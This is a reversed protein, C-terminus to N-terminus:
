TSSCCSTCCLQIQLWGPVVPLVCDAVNLHLVPWQWRATSCVAAQYHWRHVGFEPLRKLRKALQTCWRGGAKWGPWHLSGRFLTGREGSSRHLAPVCSGALGLWPRMDQGTTSLGLLLRHVHAAPTGAGYVSVRSVCCASLLVLFCFLPKCLCVAHCHLGDSAVCPGPSRPADQCCNCPSTNALWM